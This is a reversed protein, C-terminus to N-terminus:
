KLTEKLWRVKEMQPYNYLSRYVEHALDFQDIANGSDGKKILTEGFWVRAMAELLLGNPTGKMLEFSNEFLCKSEDWRGNSALYEAKSAEYLCRTTSHMSWNFEKELNDALHCNEGAQEHLDKRLCAHVMTSYSLLLVFKSEVEKARELGNQAKMLATDNDGLSDHLLSLNTDTWCLLATQGIKKAIDASRELLKRAERWNGLHFHVMGSYYLAEMQGSFGPIGNAIRAADEVTELAKEIKGLTLYVDALYSMFRVMQDPDNGDRLLEISRLFSVEAKEFDGKWLSFTGRDALIESLEHKDESKIAEEEALDLYGFTKDLTGEGLAVGCWCEALYRLLRPDANVLGKKEVIVNLYSVAKELNGIYLNAYALNMNVKEWYSALEQDSEIYGLVRELYPISETMAGRMVCQDAFCLSYKADRKRDNAMNFHLALEAINSDPDMEEISLGVLRHYESRKAASITEYVVQRIVHHSFQYGQPIDMIMQHVSSMKDLDGFLTLRDMQAVKALLEVDFRYGIVAALELSGRERDNLREMRRRVIERITDPVMLVIGPILKWQGHQKKIQKSSALMRTTEIAYLPNGESEEVVRKTVELDVKDGLTGEVLSGVNEPSLGRLEIEEVLDERRMLRLTDFLAGRSEGSETVLEESRYTGLLMLKMSKANRALFHLLQISQSDAWQLDEIRIIMPQIKTRNKIFELVSFMIRDPTWTTDIVTSKEDDFCVNVKSGLLRGVGTQVQGKSLETTSRMINNFAEVFPLYAYPIGPLCNGTLCLCNLDESRQIFEEALRSKGIGAEGSILVLRGDQMMTGSLISFLTEREQERGIFQGKGVVGVMVM